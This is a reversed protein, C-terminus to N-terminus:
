RRELNLIHLEHKTGTWSVYYANPKTKMLGPCQIGPKDEQKGWIVKIWYKLAVTKHIYTEPKRCGVSQALCLSGSKFSSYSPTFQCVRYTLLALLWTWSPCGFSFSLCASLTWLGHFCCYPYVSLCLHQHPVRASSSVLVCTVFWPWGQSCVTVNMIEKAMHSHFLPRIPHTHDIMVQLKPTIQEM